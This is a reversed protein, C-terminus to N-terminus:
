HAPPLAHLGPTNTQCAPGIRCPTAHFMAHQQLLSTPCPPVHLAGYYVTGNYVLGCLAQGTGGGNIALYNLSNKCSAPCDNNAVPVWLGTATFKTCFLRQTHLM